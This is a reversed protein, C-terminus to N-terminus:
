NIQVFLKLEVSLTYEFVDLPRSPEINLFAWDKPKKVTERRESGLERVVKIPSCVM